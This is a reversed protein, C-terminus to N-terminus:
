LTFLWASRLFARSSARLFRRGATTSIMVSPQLSAGGNRRSARASGVRKKGFYSCKSAFFKLYIMQNICLTIEQLIYLVGSLTDKKKYIVIIKKYNKRPIYVIYFIIALASFFFYLFDTAPPSRLTQSLIKM